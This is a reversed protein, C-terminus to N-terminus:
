LSVIIISYMIDSIYYNFSVEVQSEELGGGDTIEEGITILVPESQELIIPVPIVNDTSNIVESFAGCDAEAM